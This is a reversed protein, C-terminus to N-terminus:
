WFRCNVHVWARMARNMEACSTARGWPGCQSFVFIQGNQM